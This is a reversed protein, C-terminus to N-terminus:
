RPLVEPQLMCRPCCSRMCCRQNLCAVRTSAHSSYLLEAHLMEPQLMRSQNFCAVLVVAGHAVGRTSAHSSYLLEANGTKHREEFGSEVEATAAASRENGGRPLWGSVAAGGGTRSILVAPSARDVLALFAGHRAPGYSAPLPALSVRPALRALDM